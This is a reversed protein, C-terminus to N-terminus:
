EPGSHKFDVTKVITPVPLGPPYAGEAKIRRIDAESIPLRLKQAIARVIDGRDIMGAVAGTPTVVTLRPLNEAELRQIVDILAAKEPLSVIQEMPTLVDQVTLHDWQSREISRLTDLSIVGRYRGNSSAFYVPPAHEELLALEAFQRLRQDADIVRYDRTMADSAQLRSLAQQLTTVREYADANRIGFWGLLAIWLGGSSGFRLFAYLGLLIATWGLIKGSRAAWQTGQYRDGTLKWVFARLVQGGDLPLGPILNFLGLILNIQGLNTLMEALPTRAELSGGGLIMLVGLAFSVLPGAIAVQFAQGPTKSEEDISAVGGFLFLTISNVRIGQSRAVLSHGLEHLLVSLFLLLATALGVLFATGGGWNSFQSRYLSSYSFTILGLILFWSPDILLPIGFISGIRWGSQM